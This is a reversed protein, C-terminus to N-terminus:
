FKDVEKNRLNWFAPIGFILIIGGLVRTNSAYLFFLGIPLSILFLRHYIGAKTSFIDFSNWNM